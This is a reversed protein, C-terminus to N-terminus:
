INYNYLDREQRELNYMNYNHIQEQKWMNYEHKSDEIKMNLNHRKNM